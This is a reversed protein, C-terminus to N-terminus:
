RWLLSPPGENCGAQKFRRFVEFTLCLEAVDRPRSLSHATINDIADGIRRQSTM